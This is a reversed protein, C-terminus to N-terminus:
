RPHGGPGTVRLPPPGVRELCERLRGFGDGIVTTEIMPSGRREEVDVSVLSATAPDFMIFGDTMWESAAPILDALVADVSMRIWGADPLDMLLIFVTSRRMGALDCAGMADAFQRRAPWLQIVRGASQGISRCDATLRASEEFDCWDGSLQHRHDVFTEALLRRARQARWRWRVLEARESVDGM